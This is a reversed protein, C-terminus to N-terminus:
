YSKKFIKWPHTYVVDASPLGHFKVFTLESPKTFQPYQETPVGVRISVLQPSHAESQIIAYKFM